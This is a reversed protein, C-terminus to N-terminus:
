VPIHFLHSAHVADCIHKYHVNDPDPESYGLWQHSIFMVDFTAAFALVHEYLDLTIVDGRQRAEEHPILKGHKKFATYKVLCVSFPLSTVNNAATMLRKRNAERRLRKAEVASRYHKLFRNLAFGGVIISSSSM